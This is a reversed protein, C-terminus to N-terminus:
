EPVRKTEGTSEERVCKSAEEHQAADLSDGADNDTGTDYPYEKLTEIFTKPKPDNLRSLYRKARDELIQFFEVNDDEKEEAVWRAHNALNYITIMDQKTIEGGKGMDNQLKIQIMSCLPGFPRKAVNRHKAWRKANMTLVLGLFLTEDPSFLKPNVPMPAIPPKIM